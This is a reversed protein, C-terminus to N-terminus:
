EDPGDDKGGRARNGLKRANVVSRMWERVPVAPFGGWSEGAPVDSLVVGRAAIRAREGITVHDSAGSQGGFQVFDGVTVSGSLGVQGVIICHRGITANHGIQVLNDIKTGEGIVTDRTGGRDVTTGAGIEVDDQIIVRGIQPVKNLGKPGPVYGFGDQGIKCGAHIIVRDGLLAHVITAGPGIACGRGIRVDPGIVATPAIVTGAGIEARPGIVAGPDITVGDELRATPHVMAGASIGTADFLSSPRLADPFLANAVAVFARYPDRIRLVTLHEPPRDTLREGILCAGANTAAFADSFKSKDFFTLDSPGAQDIPAINTIRRDLRARPGPEAKVLAAIEAVTLGSPRKYFFPETM